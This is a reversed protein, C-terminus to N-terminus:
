RRKSRLRRGQLYPVHELIYQTPVDHLRGGDSLNRPLCVNADCSYPEGALFREALLLRM